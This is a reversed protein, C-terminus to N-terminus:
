QNKNEKYKWGYNWLFQDIQRKLRKKNSKPNVFTEKFLPYNGTIFKLMWEKFDDEEQTTWTHKTFWFDETVDIEDLNTGVKNCMESLIIKIGESLHENM